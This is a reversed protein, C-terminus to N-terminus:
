THFMGIFDHELKFPLYSISSTLKFPLLWSERSHHVCQNCVPMVSPFRMDMACLPFAQVEQDTKVHGELPFNSLIMDKGMAQVVFLDYRSEQKILQVIIQEESAKHYM